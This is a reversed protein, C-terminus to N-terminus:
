NSKYTRGLLKEIIASGNTIAENPLNTEYMLEHLAKAYLMVADYLYCAFRNAKISMEQEHKQVGFQPLYM